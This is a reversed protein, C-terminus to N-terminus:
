PEDAVAGIPQLYCTGDGSRQAEQAMRLISGSLNQLRALEELNSWEIQGSGDQRVTIKATRSFGM